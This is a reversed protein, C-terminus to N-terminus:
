QWEPEEEVIQGDRLQVVRDAQRAVAPDHTAAVVAVGTTALVRLAALVEGATTHDLQGTPEDAVLLAPPGVAAFGIATRQQEGGSLRRPLHGARAALALRDLLAALQSDAPRLGRLAAGLELHERVTLYDLLNDAPNQHVYGLRMRRLKVRGTRSLQAVETGAIRIQGSDPRDICALLRLLTSKGSGSPGVLATISGAPLSLDVGRLAPVASSDARYTRAVARCVAAPEAPM